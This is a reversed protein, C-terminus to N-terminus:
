LKSAMLSLFLSSSLLSSQVENSLLPVTKALPHTKLKSVTDMNTTIFVYDADMEPILLDDKQLLRDVFKLGDMDLAWIERISHGETEGPRIM